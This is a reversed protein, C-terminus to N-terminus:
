AAHVYRRGVRISFVAVLLLACILFLIKGPWSDNMKFVFLASVFFLAM